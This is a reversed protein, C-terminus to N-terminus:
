NLFKQSCIPANTLGFSMVMFKYHGYRMRFTMKPIDEQRIKLQHYGSQLDIKSFCQAWQLQNFLNDIWPLLDKNWVTVKNLQRYDICLQFTGDKKKVFMVPAGWPLSSPWIFGKDLLEQLQTQLEELEKPAMRYPPVFTPQTSPVVDIYFEIERDLSLGPLEKPFVDPFEWVVFVQDLTVEPKDM